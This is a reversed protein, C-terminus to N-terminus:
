LRALLLETEMGGVICKLLEIWPFRYKLAVFIFCVAEVDTSCVPYLLCRQLWFLCLWYAGLYQILLRVSSCSSPVVSYLLGTIRFSRSSFASSGSGRAKLLSSSTLLENDSAIIKFISKCKGNNTLTLSHNCCLSFHNIEAIWDM